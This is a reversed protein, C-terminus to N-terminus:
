DFTVTKANLRASTIEATGSTTLSTSSSWITTAGIGVSDALICGNFQELKNIISLVADRQFDYLKSWIISQKFGTAENPLVDDSIDNLFENFVNFLTMFYILEPANEQYVVSIHDIVADTVDKLRRHDNWLSNFTQFWQDSAPADLRAMLNYVNNGRQCGLGVGTFGNLPMYVHKGVKSEVAVFGSMFEDTVNSKFTACRRLWEACDRAVARQTMDNRLKIEFETGYLSRERNLKIMDDRVIRTVNDFVTATM